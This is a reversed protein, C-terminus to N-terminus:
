PPIPTKYSKTSLTADSKKPLGGSTLMKVTLPSTREGPSFLLKNEFAAEEFAANTFAKAKPSVSGCISAETGFKEGGSITTESFCVWSGCYWRHLTCNCCANPARVESLM